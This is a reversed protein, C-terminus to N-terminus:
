SRGTVAAAMAGGFFRTPSASAEKEEPADTDPHSLSEFLARHRGKPNRSRWGVEDTQNMRGQDDPALIRKQSM